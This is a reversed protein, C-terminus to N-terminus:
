VFTLISMLLSLRASEMVRRIDLSLGGDFLIIVLAMSLFIDRFQDIDSLTNDTVLRFRTGLIDPGILMGFAVLILIDPIRYKTFIANGLFGLIIAAGIALFATITQAEM